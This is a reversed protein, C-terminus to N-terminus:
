QKGLTVALLAPVGSIGVMEIDRIPVAPKPNAWATRYIAIKPFSGSTGVWAAATVTNTEFRFPTDSGQSWDRMNLPTRVEIKQAAKMLIRYRDHATLKAMAKAGRTAAALAQDVDGADGHPVTDVVHNDFPHRVEIKGHKDVWKGGICMKM